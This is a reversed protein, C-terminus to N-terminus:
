RGKMDNLAEELIDDQADYFKYERDTAYNTAVQYAAEDLEGTIDLFDDEEPYAFDPLDAEHSFLVKGAKFINCGCFQMGEERYQLALVLNAWRLSVKQLGEIPPGWPTEFNFQASSNGEGIEDYSTQTTETDIWKCGWWDSQTTATPEVGVPLPAYSELIRLRPPIVDGEDTLYAESQKRTLGDIFALVDEENGSVTLENMNWNPM